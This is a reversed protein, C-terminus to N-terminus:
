KLTIEIVGNVGKKGYKSIAYEGKLVNIKSISNPDIKDMENKSIEKGNLFYIPNQNINSNEVNDKGVKFAIPLSYNIKVNKNNYKGPKMQPLLNIIRKAENVLADHPARAKVDTINGNEDITFITFIRKLGEDLGLNNALSANFNNSVHATIKEMLCNRLEEESGECGPFVPVNDLMKFPVVEDEEYVWQTKYDDASKNTKLFNIREGNSDIVVFYDVISNEINIFKSHFEKEFETYDEYPVITGDLHKGIFTKGNRFDFYKGQDQNSTKSLIAEMELLEDKEANTCSVYVLMAVLFPVILLYKLQKISSSKKQTIMTIRKKILSHKYFQNIFTIGDTKFTQSLLLNFYNTKETKKVVEADAIYEHLLAIRNQYVYIFPNFWMIIKLLEFFLLDLTHLQKCHVIEHNIISLEKKDILNQHIFIYNFFSFASQNNPLLILLYKGHKIKHNNIIILIIKGLRFFFLTLFLIVGFYFIIPLFQYTSSASNSKLIIAEPNLLVTPLQVVYEQPISKQISQFKVFPMVLSAFSTIILYFRNWKFFTEKQLFLDYVILFLAQFLLVQISYTIM